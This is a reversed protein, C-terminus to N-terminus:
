WHQIIFHTKKIVQARNYTHLGLRSRVGGGQKKRQTTAPGTSSNHAGHIASAWWFVVATSSRLATREECVLVYVVEHQQKNKMVYMYVRTQQVPVVANGTCYKDLVCTSCRYKTRYWRVVESKQKGTYATNIIVLLVTLPPGTNFFEFSSDLRLTKFPLILLRLWSGGCQPLLTCLLVYCYMVTCLLVKCYLATRRTEERVLPGRKSKRTNSRIKKIKYQYEYATTQASKKVGFEKNWLGDSFGNETM